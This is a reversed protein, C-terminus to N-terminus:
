HPNKVSMFATEEVWVIAAPAAQRPILWTKDLSGHAVPSNARWALLVIRKFNGTPLRRKSIVGAPKNATDSSESVLERTKSIEALASLSRAPLAPV